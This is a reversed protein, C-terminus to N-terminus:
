GTVKGMVYVAQPNPSESGGKKELSIAFAKAILITKMKVVPMNVALDILGADVMKGDVLAWLQYQKDTAPQPLNNVMLYVDKSRTDWYVTAMCGPKPSTPMDSMKVVAMAPDKIHSVMAEYDRIHTQLAQNSVALQNQSALLEDYKVISAKYRGFFYFNMATSVALLLLCAAVVYRSWISRVPTLPPSFRSTSNAEPKLAPLGLLAFVKGKLEKPPSAAENLAQKELAREFKDRAAKVAPDAACMAEFERLDEASALGLVCSEVIGSLIYEQVNM